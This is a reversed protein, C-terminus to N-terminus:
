SAQKLMGELEAPIIRDPDILQILRGGERLMRGLFPAGATVLANEEFESRSDQMLATVAGAMLGLKVPPQSGRAHLAVIIRTSLRRQCSERGLLRNLDVVVVPEGRLNLVGAVYAPADPRPQLRVAPVIGIVRGTELAYESGGSKFTLYLM